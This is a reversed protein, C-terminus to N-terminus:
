EHVGQENRSKKFNLNRIYVECMVNVCVDGNNNYIVIPYSKIHKGHENLVQEAESIDKDSLSIGFKITGNSKKLFDIHASRSWVAVKYGKRSLLQHFLVPYCVDAASFITGGFISRNYNRNLISKSINVQLGSFDKEINVVWIRQFFLPPYFRLVWKLLGASVVM